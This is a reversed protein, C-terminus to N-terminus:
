THFVAHPTHPLHVITCTADVAHLLSNSTRRRLMSNMLLFFPALIKTVHLYVQQHQQEERRHFSFRLASM